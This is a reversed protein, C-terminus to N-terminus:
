RSLTIRWNKRIEAGRLPQHLSVQIPPPPWRCGATPLSSRVSCFCSRAVWREGRVTADSRGAPLSGQVGVERRFIFDGEIPSSSVWPQQAGGTARKVALGVQNFTQFVDLGPKRITEALAKTYPSDGDAGNQAVNIVDEPIGNETVGCEADAAHAAGPVFSAAVAAIALVTRLNTREFAPKRKVEDIGM